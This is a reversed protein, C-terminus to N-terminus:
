RWHEVFYDDYPWCDTGLDRLVGHRFRLLDLREQPTLDEDHPIPDDDWQADSNYHLEGGVYYDRRFSTRWQSNSGWNHSLDQVDRYCRWFTFYMCSRAAAQQDLVASGARVTVGSRVLLLNGVFAGPWHQDIITPPERPDDSEVVDVIEHFFPHFKGETISTAGALETFETWASPSAGSYAAELYHPQLPVLLMDVLRNVAYLGWRQEAPLELRHGERVGYEHLEAILQPREAFWPGFQAAGWGAPEDLLSEFLTRVEWLGSDSVLRAYM